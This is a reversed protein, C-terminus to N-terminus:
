LIVRYVIPHVKIQSDNFVNGTIFSRIKNEGKKNYLDINDILNFTEWDRIEIHYEGIMDVMEQPTFEKVHFEQQPSWKNSIGNRNPTSIWVEQLASKILNKIGERYDKVHEIVEVAVVIEYLEKYPCQSIDWLDFSLNEKSRVSKAYEVNVALKDTAMVSDANKALLFAGLGNGCGAELVTKSKILNSLNNYIKENQPLLVEGDLSRDQDKEPNERYQM